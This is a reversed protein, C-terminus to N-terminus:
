KNLEQLARDLQPDRGANFDDQTQDVTIDPQIGQKDITKGSPTFWHAVTVKLEAGGAMKVVEQVSGKGFSKAGILTAVGNDKLAGAVIESASASGENILVVTKAGVLQGGGQSDLQDRVQGSHKETVVLKGSPLFQSAVAVGADLYGGPDNRLDLIYKTAGQQKLESAAQKIKDTTDAGFETVQIYGVGNDKMSWKVSPVNIVDRTIKIKQPESSGRVITLTVTTGKDGRIKAVAQDLTLTSSDTDNIKAIIDGSKLGAKEAPSGSVPAIVTLHNDKIGVEAGIGSLTGKLQDDLDKAAKADLYVTYPDGAASVLGAKAGDLVKSNDVSGDFKSKLIDYTGQLDNFNVESAASSGFGVFQPALQGGVFGAGLLVVGAIIANTKSLNNM